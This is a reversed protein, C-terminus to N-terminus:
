LFILYLHFPHFFLHPLLFSLLCDLNEEFQNQWYYVFYCTCNFMPTLSCDISFLDGTMTMM